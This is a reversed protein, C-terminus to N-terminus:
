RPVLDCDVFREAVFTLSKYTKTAFGLTIQLIIVDLQRLKMNIVDHYSKEKTVKITSREQYVQQSTKLTIKIRATM